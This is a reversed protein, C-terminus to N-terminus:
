NDLFRMKPSDKKKPEPKQAAVTGRGAAMVNNFSQTMTRKCDECFRGSKIMKGCKECNLGVTSDDSFELREERVWQRIQGSDVNCEESVTRIDVHPHEQIYKRVTQYEKEMEERCAPCYIPGVVYNFLRRCRRCNRVNM